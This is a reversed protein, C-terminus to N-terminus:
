RVYLNFEVNAGNLATGDQRYCQINLCASYDGEALSNNLEIDYYGTGAACYGSHWYEDEDVYLTMLFLCDNGDPNFFNVKQATTDKQFVLSEIGPIAIGKQGNPMHYTAKDGAYEVASEDPQINPPTETEHNLFIYIGAGILLLLVIIISILVKIKAKESM